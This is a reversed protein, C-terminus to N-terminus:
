FFILLPDRWVRVKHMKCLFINGCVVSWPHCFLCLHRLSLIQGTVQYCTCLCPLSSRSGSIRKYDNTPAKRKYLVPIESRLACTWGSMSSNVSLASSGSSASLLCLSTLSPLSWYLTCKNGDMIKTNYRILCFGM